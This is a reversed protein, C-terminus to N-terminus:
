LGQTQGTARKKKLLVFIAIVVLVVAVVGLVYWITSDVNSVIEQKITGFNM